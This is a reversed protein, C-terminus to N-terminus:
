SASRRRDEAGERRVHGAEGDVEKKGFALRLERSKVVRAARTCEGVGFLADMGFIVIISPFPLFSDCSSSGLDEILLSSCSTMFQSSGENCKLGNDNKCYECPVPSLGLDDPGLVLDFAAAAMIEGVGSLGM